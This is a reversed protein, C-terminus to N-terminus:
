RVRNEPGRGRFKDVFSAIAAADFSELDLRRKWATVVIKKGLNPMTTFVVGDWDGKFKISWWFFANASATDLQGFYVVVNGHELAHVLRTPPQPKTYFGARIPRPDHNGSTPYIVDYKYVEGANLHENGKDPQIKVSNISSRGKKVLSDFQEQALATLSPFTVALITLAILLWLSYFSRSINFEGVAFDLGIKQFCLKKVLIIM